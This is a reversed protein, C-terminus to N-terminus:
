LNPAIKHKAIRRLLDDAETTLNQTEVNILQLELEVGMTLPTSSTFALPHPASIPMAVNHPREILAIATHEVNVTDTNMSDDTEHNM